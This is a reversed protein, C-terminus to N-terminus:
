ATKKLYLSQVFANVESSPIALALGNLIMTTIGIVRGNADALLGGSNGPALRVDAQIWNRGAIPGVAHIVGAAVAGAMGLPNGVALVLQGPRLADSDGIEAPSGSTIPAPELLALDRVRDRLIVRALGRNGSAAKGYGGIIGAKEGPVVHANTVICGTADWIVGSGGGRGPVVQVLSRQLRAAIREFDPM